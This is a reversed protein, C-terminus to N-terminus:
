ISTEATATRFSWRAQCRLRSHLRPRLSLRRSSQRRLSFAKGLPGTVAAVQRNKLLGGGSGSKETRRKIGVPHCPAGKQQRRMDAEDNVTWVHVQM